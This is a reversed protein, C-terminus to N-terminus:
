ERDPELGRLITTAVEPLLAGLDAGLDRQLVTTPIDIVHEVLDVAVDLPMRRVVGAAMGQDLIDRLLATDDTDVTLYVPTGDADRHSIAIEAGAAIEARHSDLHTLYAEVYARLRATPEEDRGAAAALAVGLDGWVHELVHLLLADRTGFYYVVASKAVGARRAVEALSTRPYGVENVTTIAAAVIQRRRAAATFSTPSATM